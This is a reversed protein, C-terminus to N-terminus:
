KGFIPLTSASKQNEGRWRWTKYYYINLELIYKRLIVLILRFKNCM